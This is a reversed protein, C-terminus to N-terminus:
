NCFVFGVFASKDSCEKIKLFNGCVRERRASGAKCGNVAIQNNGISDIKM